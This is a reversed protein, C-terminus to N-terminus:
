DKRVLMFRVMGQVLRLQKDITNVVESDCHFNVLVYQGEELKNIPYALRRLGWDDITDIAGGVTEIHRKIREELTQKKEDTLTPDSIYLLEYNSL